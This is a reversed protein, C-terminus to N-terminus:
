SRVSVLDEVRRIVDPLADLRLPRRLDVMDVAACLHAVRAFVASRSEATALHFTLAFLDRIADTVPRHELTVDGDGGRLFLVARLPVGAASGRVSPDLVIAVRGPDGDADIRGPVQLSSAVDTRLRIAAPGPFVTPGGDLSCHATDEALLRHGAAAFAGALTTKGYKSPGAFLIGAGNVEIAAAHISLDGRALSCLSIPVGFLRLERRLTPPAAEMTVSRGDGGVVFWGADNTWFAFGDHTRLLRGEFPNDARARWSLLPAGDASLGVREDIELPRGPGSRLTAFPFAARIEFGSCSGQSTLQTDPEPTM